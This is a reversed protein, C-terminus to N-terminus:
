WCCPRVWCLLLMYVFTLLVGAIVTVPQRVVLAFERPTLTFSIFLIMLFTLAQSYRQVAKGPATTWLGLLLGVVVVRPAPGETM